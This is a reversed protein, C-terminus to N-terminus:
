EQAMAQKAATVLFGSRSMGHRKAYADIARLDFDPVMLSIRISKSPEFPVALLIKGEIPKEPTVPPLAEGSDLICQLHLQLADHAMYAAEELTDACSLCGPVDPFEISYGGEEEPTLVAMYHM